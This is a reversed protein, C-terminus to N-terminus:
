AITNSGGNDIYIDSMSGHLVNDYSNDLTINTINTDFTNNHCWEGLTINEAGTKFTNESCNEQLVINNFSEGIFLNKYLFYKQKEYRPVNIVNNHVDFVESLSADYSVDDNNDEIVSYYGPISTANFTYANNFKINKFDYTLENGWEDKM